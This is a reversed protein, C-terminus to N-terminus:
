PLDSMQYDLIPGVSLTPTEFLAGCSNVAPTGREYSVAGGRLIVM